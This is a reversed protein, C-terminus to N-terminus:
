KGRIWQWAGAEGEPLMGSNQAEEILIMEEPTLETRAQGTKSPVMYYISGDCRKLCIAPLRQKALDRIITGRLAAIRASHKGLMEGIWAEPVEDVLNVYERAAGMVSLKLVWELQGWYAMMDVQHSNWTEWPCAGQHLQFTHGQKTLVAGAQKLELLHKHLTTMHEFSGKNPFKLNFTNTLVTSWRKPQEPDLHYCIDAQRARLQNLVLRELKPADDIQWPLSVKVQDGQLSVKIGMEMAQALLETISVM